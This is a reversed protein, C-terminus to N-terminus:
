TFPSHHITKSSASMGETSPFVLSGYSTGWSWRKFYLRPLVEHPVGRFSVWENSAASSRQQYINHVEDCHSIFLLYSGLLLITSWVRQRGSREPFLRNFLQLDRWTYGVWALFLSSSAKVMTNHIQKLLVMAQATHRVPDLLATTAVMRVYTKCTPWSSASSFWLYITASFIYRNIDYCFVFHLYHFLIANINTM